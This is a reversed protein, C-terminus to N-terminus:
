LLPVHALKQKSVPIKVHGDKINISYEANLKHSWFLSQYKSHSIGCLHSNVPLSCVTGARQNFCFWSKRSNEPLKMQLILAASNVRKQTGTSSGGFVNQGTWYFEFINLSVKVAAYTKQLTCTM